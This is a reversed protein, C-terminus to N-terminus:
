EESLVECRYLIVDGKRREFRMRGSEEMRSMMSLVESYYVKKKLGGSSEKMVEGIKKVSLCRGNLKKMVEEYDVKKVRKGSVEELKKWEEESVEEVKGNKVVKKGVM